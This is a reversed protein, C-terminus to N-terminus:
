GEFRMYESQPILNRRMRQIGLMYREMALKAQELNDRFMYSYHLAKDVIVQEFQDPILNTSSDILMKTPAAFYDYYIYYRRNALPTVFTKNHNTRVIADPVGYGNETANLDRELFTNLYGEYDLLQLKRSQYPPRYKADSESAALTNPVTFTFTYVDIVSAVVWTANYGTDTANTITFNDGVELVHELGTVATAMTGVRNLSDINISQNSIYFSNWDVATAQSYLSYERTGPDTIIYFQSRAFPWKIDQETYIDYVSMNVADKVDAHFGSASAFNSSTLPVENFAQLVRNTLGLFTSAM